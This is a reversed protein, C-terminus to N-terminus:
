STVQKNHWRERGEKEREKERQREKEREREREIYIYIYIDKMKIENMVVFVCIIYKDERETDEKTHIEDFTQM